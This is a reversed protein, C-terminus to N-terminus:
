WFKHYVGLSCYYVCYTIWFLPLFLAHALQVWVSKSVLAVPFGIEGCFCLIYQLNSKFTPMSSMYLSKPKFTLLMDECFNDHLNVMLDALGFLVLPWTQIAVGFCTQSSNTLNFPVSNLPLYKNISFGLNLGLTVFGLVIVNVDRLGNSGNLNVLLLESKSLLILLLLSLPKWTCNSHVTLFQSCFEVYM